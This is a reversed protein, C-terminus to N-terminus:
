CFFYNYYWILGVQKEKVERSVKALKGGDKEDKFKMDKVSISSVQKLDIEGEISKSL